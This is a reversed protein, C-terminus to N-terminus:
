KEREASNPLTKSVNKREAETADSGHDANEAWTTDEFQEQNEPLNGVTKKHDSSRQAEEQQINKKDM